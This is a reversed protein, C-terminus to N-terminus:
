SLIIARKLGSRLKEVACHHSQSISLLIGPVGTPARYWRVLVFQIESHCEQRAAIHKDPQGQKSKSQLGFRRGANRALSRVIRAEFLDGLNERLPVLGIRRTACECQDLVPLNDILSTVSHRVELM